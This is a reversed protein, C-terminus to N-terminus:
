YYNGFCSESTSYAEWPMCARKVYKIEIRVTLRHPHFHYQVWKYLQLLLLQFFYSTWIICSYNLFEISREIVISLLVWRSKPFLFEPWLHQKLRDLLHVWFAILLICFSFIFCLLHWWLGTDNKKKVQGCTSLSSLREALLRAM